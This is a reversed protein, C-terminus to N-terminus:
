KYLVKMLVLEKRWSDAATETTLNIACGSEIRVESSREESGLERGPWTSFFWFRIFNWRVTESQSSSTTPTFDIQSSSLRHQRRSGHSAAVNKAIVWPYQLLVLCLHRSIQNFCDTQGATGTNTFHVHKVNGM